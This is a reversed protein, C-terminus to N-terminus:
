SPDRDAPSSGPQFMNGTVYQELESRPFRLHRRGLRVYPLRGAEVEDYVWDKSVKFWDCVEHVTLLEDVGQSPDPM